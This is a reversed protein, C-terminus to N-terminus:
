KCWTPEATPLERPLFESFSGAEVERTTAAERIPMRDMTRTPHWATEKANKGVIRQIVDQAEAPDEVTLTEPLAESCEQLSQEAVAEPAAVNPIALKYVGRAGGNCVDSMRSLRSFVTQRSKGTIIALSSLSMPGNTLAQRLRNDLCDPGTQKPRGRKTGMRRPANKSEKKEKVKDAIKEWEPFFVDYAWKDFWEDTMTPYTKRIWAYMFCLTREESMIRRGIVFILRKATEGNFATNWDAVFNKTEYWLKYPYHDALEEVGYKACV